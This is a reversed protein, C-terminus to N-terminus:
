LHGSGAPDRHRLRGAQPPRPPRAPRRRRHRGAGGPGGRRAGPPDGADTTVAEGAARRSATGPRTSAAAGAGPHRPPPSPTAPTMTTAAAPATAPTRAPDTGRPPRLVTALTM